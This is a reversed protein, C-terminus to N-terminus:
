TVASDFVSPVVRHKEGLAAGLHVLRMWLVRDSEEEDSELGFRVGELEFRVGGDGSDDALVRLAAPGPKIRFDDVQEPDGYEKDPEVAYGRGELIEIVAPQAIRRLEDISITSEPLTLLSFTIM